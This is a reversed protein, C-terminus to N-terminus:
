QTPGQALVGAARLGELTIETEPEALGAQEYFAELAAVDPLRGVAQLYVAGLRPDLAQVGTLAASLRMFRELGAPLPTPTGPAQPSELVAIETTTAYADPGFQTTQGAEACAALAGAAALGAAQLFRRRSLRTPAAPDPRHELDTM